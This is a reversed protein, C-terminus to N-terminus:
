ASENSSWPKNEPHKNKARAIAQEIVRKMDQSTAKEDRAKKRATEKEFRLKRIQVRDKAIAAQQHLTAENTSPVLTICQVPCVPICKDCGVCFDAMVVHLQKSAGIIADVPCVPLCKACGICNEEDIKVVVREHVASM